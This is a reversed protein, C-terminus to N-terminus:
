KSGSQQDYKKGCPKCLILRSDIGRDWLVDKHETCIEKGCWRCPAVTWDDTTCGPKSCQPYGRMQNTAMTM